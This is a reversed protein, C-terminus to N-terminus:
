AAFGVCGRFGGDRELAHGGREGWFAVGRREGLGRVVTRDRLASWFVVTLSVDQDEEPFGLYVTGFVAVRRRRCPCVLYDEKIGSLPGFGGGVWSSCLAASLPGWCLPGSVWFLFLDVWWCGSRLPVDVKGEEERGVWARKASPGGFTFFSLQSSGLCLRCCGGGIVSNERTSWLWSNGDPLIEGNGREGFSYAFPSSPFLPIFIGDEGQALGPPCLRPNKFGAPPNRAGGLTQSRM